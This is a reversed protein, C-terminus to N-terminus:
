IIMSRLEEKRRDTKFSVRLATSPSVFATRSCTQVRLSALPASPKHLVTVKDQAPGLSGEPPCISSGQDEVERGADAGRPSQQSEPSSLSSSSERAKVTPTFKIRPSWNRERQRSQKPLTYNTQNVPKHRAWLRLCM